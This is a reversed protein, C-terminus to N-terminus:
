REALRKGMELVEAAGRTVVFLYGTFPRQERRPQYHPFMEFGRSFLLKVVDVDATPMVRGYGNGRAPDYAGMVFKGLYELPGAASWERRYYSEPYAPYREKWGRAAAWQDAGFIEYALKPGATDFINVDHNLYTIEIWPADPYISVEQVAEGGFDLRVTKRDAGDHLIASATIRNAKGKSHSASRSDIRGALNPGGPKAALEVIADKPGVDSSQYEGYRVRIRANELVVSHEATTISGWDAASAALSVAFLLAIRTM